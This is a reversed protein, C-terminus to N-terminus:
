SVAHALPSHLEPERAVAHDRMSRFSGGDTFFRVARYRGERESIEKELSLDLKMWWQTAIQSGM